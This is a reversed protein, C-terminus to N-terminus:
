ILLVVVISALPHGNPTRYCFFCIAHLNNSTLLDDFIYAIVHPLSDDALNNCSREILSWWVNVRNFQYSAVCENSRSFFRTDEKAITVQVFIFVFRNWRSVRLSLSFTTHLSLPLSLYLFFVHLHVIIFSRSYSLFVASVCIALFRWILPRPLRFVCVSSSSPPYFSDISFLHTARWQPATKLLMSCVYRVACYLNAFCQNYWFFFVKANRWYDINFTVNCISNFRVM